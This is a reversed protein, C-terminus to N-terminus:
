YLKFLRASIILCVYTLLVSLPETSGSNVTFTYEIPYTNREMWNRARDSLAPGIENRVRETYVNYWELQAPSLMTFDILNPDFPVLSIMEFTMYEYTSFSHDTVADVVIMDNELRIGFSGDEYYGPEDSFFMGKELPEDHARYGLTIRGPGEHINLFYGIGHGTGHKYDLGNSWLPERAIADIERGYVGTRFNTRVLDISGMLIRTYAEKELATPTGYHMTRTIDTTGDLYQGGSDLMYTGQKTIPVNTGNSSSYHIIAGHAAFASISKFSLGRFEEWRERVNVAEEEVSLESLYTIDGNIAQEPTMNDVKEQLWAFLECLSVSDKWCSQKLGALETPNKVAKMLLIPSAEMIQMDESVREYIAYSSKDSFWVKKTRGIIALDELFENYNKITICNSALYTCDVVRLHAQVSESLRRDKNYLYLTIADTEIIAYSIFVPNYTIDAGRLNFIWAIEDLKTIILAQAEKKAMLERVTDNEPSADFIKSEWTRGAYKHELVLLEDGPYAPKTGEMDEWIMDVLNNTLSSLRIGRDSANLADEYKFYTSISLLTPDFGVIAENPLSAGLGANSDTALLWEEPKPVDPEGIEQSIWNCDLQMKAQLFYRGDVWLAAHNATVIALGVSGKFGSVFERRKDAKAIYESQHSDESPIIYAQINSDVMKERLKALQEDTRVTTDPYFPPEISCDRVSDDQRRVRHRASVINADHELDTPSSTVLQLVSFAVLYSVLKEM